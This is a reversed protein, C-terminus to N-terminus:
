STFWKKFNDWWKRWGTYGIHLHGGARSWGYGAGFTKGLGEEPDAGFSPMNRKLSHHSFNDSGGYPDDDPKSLDISDATAKLEKDVLAGLPCNALMCVKNPKTSGDFVCIGTEHKYDCDNSEEMFLKDVDGLVAKALMTGMNGSSNGSVEDAEKQAIINTMSVTAGINRHKPDLM